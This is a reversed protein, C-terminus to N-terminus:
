FFIRELESNSFVYSKVAVPESLGDAISRLRRALMPLKAQYEVALLTGCAAGHLELLDMSLQLARLHM